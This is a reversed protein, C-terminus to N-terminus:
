EGKYLAAETKWSGKYEHDHAMQAISLTFRHLSGFPSMPDQCRTCRYDDMGTIPITRPTHSCVHPSM